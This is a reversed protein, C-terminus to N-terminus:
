TCEVDPDGSPPFFFLLRRVKRIHNQFGSVGYSRLVFWLKLSRFKRGLGLHWNRYDIATGEDGQKTRLYLPTVDLAATLLKRDRVWM